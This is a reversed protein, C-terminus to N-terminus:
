EKKEVVKIKKGEIMRRAVTELIRPSYSSKCVRLLESESLDWMNSRNMINLAVQEGSSLKATAKIM